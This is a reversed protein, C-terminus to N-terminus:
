SSSHLLLFLIGPRLLEAAFVAKKPIFEGRAEGKVDEMLFTSM